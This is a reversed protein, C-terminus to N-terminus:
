FIRNKKALSSSFDSPWPFRNFCAEIKIEITFIRACIMCFKYPPLPFFEPHPSSGDKDPFSPSNGTLIAVQSSYQRWHLFSYRGIGPLGNLNGTSSILIVRLVGEIDLFCLLLGIM